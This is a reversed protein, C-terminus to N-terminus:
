LSKGLLQVAIELSLGPLWFIDETVIPWFPCSMTLLQCNGWKKNGMEFKPNVLSLRIHGGLCVCLIDQEWKAPRRRRWARLGLYPVFFGGRTEVLFNEWSKQRGKLKQWFLLSLPYSEQQLLNPIAKVKRMQNVKM